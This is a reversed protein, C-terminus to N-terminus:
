IFLLLFKGVKMAVNGIKKWKDVKLESANPLVINGNAMKADIIETINKQKLSNINDQTNKLFQPARVGENKFDKLYDIVENGNSDLIKPFLVPTQSNADNTKQPASRGSQLSSKARDDAGQVGDYVAAALSNSVGSRPYLPVRMTVEVIGNNTVPQGVMEANRLLGEVKTTIMDSQTSFDRVTVESNINVGQIIELLNRQAVAKAGSMAMLIAQNPNPFRTEDMMAWGKAQVYQQTWNVQATDHGTIVDNNIVPKVVPKGAPEIPAPPTAPRAQLGSSSNSNQINGKDPTIPTPRAGGVPRSGGTKTTDTKPSPLAGEGATKQAFSLHVMLFLIIALAATKTIKM